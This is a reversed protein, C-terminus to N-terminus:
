ATHRKAGHVVRYCPSYREAALKMRGDDVFAQLLRDLVSMIRESGYIEFPGRREIDAM